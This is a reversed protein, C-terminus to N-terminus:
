YKTLEAQVRLDILDRILKAYLEEQNGYGIKQMVIAIRNLKTRVEKNILVM